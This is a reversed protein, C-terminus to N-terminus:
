NSHNSPRSAPVARCAHHPATHCLQDLNPQMFQGRGESWDTGGAARRRRDAHAAVAAQGATILPPMSFAWLGQM